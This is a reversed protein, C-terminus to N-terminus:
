IVKVSIGAIPDHVQSFYSSPLLDSFSNLLLQPDAGKVLASTVRQEDNRFIAGRLQRDYYCRAGHYILLGLVSIILASTAALAITNFYDLTSNGSIFGQTIEQPSLKSFASAAGVPIALALILAPYLTKWRLSAFNSKKVVMSWLRWAEQYLFYREKKLERIRRYFIEMSWPDQKVLDALKTNNIGNEALFKKINEDAKFKNVIKKQQDLRAAATYRKEDVVPIETSDKFEIQSVFQELKELSAVHSPKNDKQRQLGHQIDQVAQAYHEQLYKVKSAQMALPAQIPIGHRRLDAESIHVGALPDQWTGLEQQARKKYLEETKDFGLIHPCVDGALPLDMQQIYKWFPDTIAPWNRVIATYSYSVPTVIGPDCPLAREGIQPSIYGIEVGHDLFAKWLKLILEKFQAPSREFQSNGNMRNQTMYVCFEKGRQDRDSDGVLSVYPGEGGAAKLTPDVPDHLLFFKFDPEVGRWNSSFLVPLAAEVAKDINAQTPKLAFRFEWNLPNDFSLKKPDPNGSRPDGYQRYDNIKHNKAQERYVNASKNEARDGLLTNETALSKQERRELESLM